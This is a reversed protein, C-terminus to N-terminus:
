GIRVAFIKADSDNGTFDGNDAGKFIVNGAAGQSRNSTLGLKYSTTSTINVITTQYAWQFSDQGSFTNGRSEYAGGTVASGGSTLLRVRWAVERPSGAGADNFKIM